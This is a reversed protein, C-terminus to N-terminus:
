INERHNQLLIMKIISYLIFQLIVIILPIGLKGSTIDIIAFIALFINIYLYTIFAANDSVLREREDMFRFKNTGSVIPKNPGGLRKNMISQAVFVVLFQTSAIISIDSNLSFSVYIDNFLHLPPFFNFNNYKKTAIWLVLILVVEFLYTYRIAIRNATQEREDKKLFM